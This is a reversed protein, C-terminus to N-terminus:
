VLQQFTILFFVNNLWYFFLVKWKLRYKYNWSLTCMPATICLEIQQQQQQQLCASILIAITYTISNFNCSTFTQFFIASYKMKLINDSYFLNLSLIGNIKAVFNFIFLNFLWCCCCCFISSNFTKFYIETSLRNYIKENKM